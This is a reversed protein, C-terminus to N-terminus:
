QGRLQAVDDISGVTVFVYGDNLKLIPKDEYLDGRLLGCCQPCHPPNMYAFRGGCTCPRFLAEIQSFVSILHRCYPQFGPKFPDLDPWSIGNRELIRRHKLLLVRPCKSCYLAQMDSFGLHYLEGSIHEGCANCTTLHPTM